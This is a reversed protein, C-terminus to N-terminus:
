NQRASLHNEPLSELSLGSLYKKVRRRGEARAKGKQPAEPQWVFPKRSHNPGPSALLHSTLKGESPNNIRTSSLPPVPKLNELYGWDSLFVPIAKTTNCSIGFNSFLHNKGRKFDMPFAESILTYVYCLLCLFWVKHVQAWTLIGTRSPM